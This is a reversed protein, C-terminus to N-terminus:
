AFTARLRHSMQMQYIQRVLVLAIPTSIIDVLDNVISVTTANILQPLTEARLSLRFSLNSVWNSILFFTWWLPLISGRPEDQWHAPNASAKWIEKMAQYPKWLNLIPIFYWGVAWGPTFKMEAAGLQRANYNARYIWICFLVIMALIQAFHVLAIIQERLDNAEAEGPALSLGANLDSLLKLQLLGSVAAIVAMAINVWLLIRLWRTLTGLDRFATAPQVIPPSAITSEAPQVSM